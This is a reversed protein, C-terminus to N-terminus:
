CGLLVFYKLMCVRTPSMTLFVFVLVWETLRTHLSLVWLQWGWIMRSKQIRKGGFIWYGSADDKETLTTKSIQPCRHNLLYYETYQFLPVVLMTLISYVVAREKWTIIKMSTNHEKQLVFVLYHRLGWSVSQFHSQVCERHVTSPKKKLYRITQVCRQKTQPTLNNVHTKWGCM